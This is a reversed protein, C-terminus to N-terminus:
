HARLRFRERYDAPTRATRRKFLKRFSSVDSYGCHEVIEDFTLLTSELLAKAREVRLQQLHTHPTCGFHTRFHRLLTRESVGCHVALEAVGVERHLNETLFRGARETLSHRPRQILALDVYPAQSQRQTDVLLIRSTQQALEAGGAREVLHLVVDLMASAAGGTLLRDQEAVIAEADLTVAPFRRLFAPGLWWSTTARRGDLLGTHALLWTGACGAAVTVGRAHLTRLLEIEAKMKRTRADLEVASAHMIGPVLVVDIPDPVTAACAVPMGSSSIVSDGGGASFVAVEFLPGADPRRIRALTEAFGFADVAAAVGSITCHEVALIGVRLPGNM